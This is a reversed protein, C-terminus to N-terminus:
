LGLVGFIDLKLFNLFQRQEFVAMLNHKLISTIRVNLAKRM